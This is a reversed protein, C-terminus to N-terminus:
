GMGDAAPRETVEHGTPPEGYMGEIERGYRAYVVRRKLKLTPTLEESDATWETPLITFRKVQEIRSLHSNAAEVGRRVEDIVAPNSALEAMTTAQIGRAKAWLPAVEADLVILACIYSHHDGVAMAQGVLPHNKLLAEINSPSINKGSSTIILEKKRDVIRYFGEDDVTAVDGTHLWGDADLLEATREPERYYGPSVNGGRILLEGDEALKAEVGLLTVGVTGLKVRDVRNSTAPGTLESMGWVEIIPLGISGFFLLVDLPTPATSTYAFQCQDLGLKGRIATLVPAMAQTRAALEPPVPADRQELEVQQRMADMAARVLGRRQEDTEAALGLEIGTKFKEWVRPVGVFVHPHVDLLTPVLKAADALLYNEGVNYIGGWHTTFREAIHALPLYSLWRMGDSYGALRKSSECTWLVNYHTYTVGKPAGTTGSTYILSLLDNPRTAGWVEDFERPSALAAKHGVELFDSWSMVWGWQAGPDGDLLVVRRLHPLQDRVALVRELFSRDQVFLVSGSCHNIIYAIQEPALTNYLSVSAGGAHTIALDAILHEPRNTAMILGFEGPAFGLARLGMTADRVISRYQAWTLTQWGDATQWKLATADGHAAAVDRFLSPITRGAVARDIDAREAAIDRPIGTAFAPSFTPMQVM